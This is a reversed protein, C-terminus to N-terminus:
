KQVEKPPEPLRDKASIWDNMTPMSAIEYDQVGHICKGTLLNYWGSKEMLADVDILRM